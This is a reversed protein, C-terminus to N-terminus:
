QLFSDFGSSHTALFRSLADSSNAANDNTKPASNKKRTPAGRYAAHL